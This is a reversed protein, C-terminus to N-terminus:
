TSNEENHESMRKRLHSLGRNKRSKVTGIPIELIDAVQPDRLGRFLSLLIVDRVGPSLEDLLGRAIRCLELDAAHTDPPRPSPCYGSYDLEPEIPEERSRNRLVKRWHSNCKSRLVRSIWPWAPRAPDYTHRSGWIAVYTDQVVEVARARDFLLLEARHLLLHRTACVIDTM